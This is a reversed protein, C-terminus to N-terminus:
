EYRFEELPIHADELNNIVKKGYKDLKNGNRQNIVYPERQSSWKAHPKGPMVRIYTGKDKPHVYMIGGGQSSVRVLYDAPIGKPRPYTKLGVSKLINRVESEPLFKKNYKDLIPEIEKFYRYSERPNVFVKGKYADKVKLTEKYKQPNKKVLEKLKKTFDTFSKQDKFLKPAKKMIRGADYLIMLDSLHLQESKNEPTYLSALDTSYIYDIFEHCYDAFIDVSDMFNAGNLYLPNLDLGGTQERIFENVADAMIPFFSYRDILADLLEHKVFSESEKYAELFSKEESYDVFEDDFFDAVFVEDTTEFDERLLVEEEFLEVKEEPLDVHKQSLPKSQNHPPPPEFTQNRLERSNSGACPALGAAIAAASAPACATAVAVVAVTGGVVVVGILIERKHKKFFRTTDGWFGCPYIGSKPRGFSDLNHSFAVMEDFDNNIKGSGAEALFELFEMSQVREENTIFINISGEEIRKLFRCVKDVDFDAYISGFLVTFCFLWFRM